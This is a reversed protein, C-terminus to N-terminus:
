ARSLYDEIDDLTWDFRQGGVIANRDADVLMYEGFHDLSVSRARDKASSSGPQGHEGASVLKM